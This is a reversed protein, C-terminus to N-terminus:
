HAAEPTPRLVEVVQDSTFIRHGSGTVGTYAVSVFSYVADHVATIELPISGDKVVTDRELIEDARITLLEYSPADPPDYNLAANM